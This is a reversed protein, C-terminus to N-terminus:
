KPKLRRRYDDVSVTLSEKLDAVTRQDVRSRSSKAANEV